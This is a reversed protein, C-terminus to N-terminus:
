CGVQRMRLSRLRNIAAAIEHRRPRAYNGPHGEARHLPELVDLGDTDFITELADTVGRLPTHGDMARRRALEIAHGVARTQSTDVIQEVARLDIPEKGFLVQDRGKADIKVERRGRSPDFSEAVPIRETVPAFPTTAEVRRQTPYDAAVQQAAATADEPQYERMWIVTDAADFYDGCGGMVLVTSVGFRDYLERVRELLPTIPERDKRVLEQMRADRILFNTASTDEDILLARTGVELAEVINAAQSTSGSADDTEFCRTSRGYPLEDIFPSIDVATVRRGDEARIKVADGLTVVYERGDGPVHAYVGRELAKLLTSKGHYGGGVVLTVGRPIGLGTLERVPGNPTPIPNALPVTVRLSEPSHLAVANRRLPRDSAGSERPLVAGDALFGVLDLSELQERIQEQNEVCEVFRRAEEQPLRAWVLGRESARPVEECLMREAERGLVRRGAAPLGVELRAEVFGSRIVVASRELVEQGGADISLLGSKGSGRRDGGAARLADRVRRALFDALAIRRVRRDVLEGPLGARDARLRVRIRSPAAFPDGQVRDVYLVFSSFAYGGRLDKYAPYGRGDIQRLLSRLEEGSRV